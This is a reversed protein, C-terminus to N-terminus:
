MLRPEGRSRRRSAGRGEEFWLVGGENLWRVQPDFRKAAGAWKRPELGVVEVATQARVIDYAKHCMKGIKFLDQLHLQVEVIM